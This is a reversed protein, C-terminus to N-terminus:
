GQSGGIRMDAVSGVGARALTVQVEEYLRWADALSTAPELWASRHALLEADNDIITALVIPRGLDQRARAMEHGRVIILNRNDPYSAAPITLVPEYVRGSQQIEHCAVLGSAIVAVSSPLLSAIPVLAERM